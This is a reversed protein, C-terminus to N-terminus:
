LEVGFAAAPARSWLDWAEARDLNLFKATLEVGRDPALSSGAFGGSPGGDRVIGDAGVFVRQRGISYNGPPAGAASMADTTFLVRGHPKARFLNQLVFPPLHVGDPILCAYLDDRALLRQVVNDHRPLMGPVGNGLHTCFRVGAQVAREIVEASADSHGIASHVGTRTLAAIFEISGEWEPALTVLRIRGGAADQLRSFSPWNPACMLEPPHAGHFGLQPCLWPGELHYGPIMRAIAEDKARFKEIRDFRACLREEADTVLTLFIAGVGRDRLQMVAHRLGELTLDDSQFDVGAFGNVQFDFLPRRGGEAGRGGKQDRSELSM